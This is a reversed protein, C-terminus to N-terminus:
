AGSARSANKHTFRLLIEWLGRIGGAVILLLLLIGAAGLLLGARLGPTRYRLEVTHTGEPIVAGTFAMQANEIKKTKKGDVYISWGEDKLISFYALSTKDATFSGKVYDNGFVALEMSRDQLVSAYKDYLEAPVAYVKIADYTYTGAKQSSLIVQLKGKVKEFYGLNITLDEIDPFGQANGITDTAAKKVGNKKVYVTFEEEGRKGNKKLGEFSILLQCNKAEDIQLTFKSKAKDTVITQKEEEAKAYKGSKIRFPVERVTTEVEEGDIELSEMGAERLEDADEDPLVMTQLMAQEREAYNLKGAESQTMYSEYLTGLGISYKNKLIDVGDITKWYTFGYGAYDSANKESSEQNGIFYKVGTLLDPVMRNDNSNPCTRKYYIANDGLFKGFEFWRKNNGSQFMYISRTNFYVTENIRNRPAVTVDVGEAQDVRWFDADEIKQAAKQPSSEFKEYAEGNSLFRKMDGKSFQYFYVNYSLIATVATMAVLIIQKKHAAGNQRASDGSKGKKGDRFLVFLFAAEFLANAAMLWIETDSVLGLIKGAFIGAFGLAYLTYLVFCLITGKKIRERALLEESMAEMCGWVCFFILICYWRGSPYSFFNLASCFAPIQTLITLLVGMVAAFRKKGAQYFMIPLVATCLPLFSYFSYNDFAMDWNTMRSPFLLYQGLTFLIPTEMGSASTSKGLKMITPLLAPMAILIGVAGCGVFVGFRQLFAGKKEPERYDLFYRIGYYLFIMMGSTYPWRFSTLTIFAVCLTFPVPSERRLIKETSLALLPFMVAGILFSGQKVSSLIMWPAFAYCMAGILTRYDRIGVKRLFMLFTVGCLYLYAVIMGSWGMDLYKKPLLAVVWYLPNFLKSSYFSWADAGLGISWSWNNLSGSMLDSLYNKFGAIFAYNQALSDPFNKSYRLMTTGSHWFVFLVGALTVAFLLTYIGLQKTMRMTNSKCGQTRQRVPVKKEKIQNKM